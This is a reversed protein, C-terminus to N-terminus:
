TSKSPVAVWRPPHGHKNGTGTEPNYRARFEGLPLHYFDYTKHRDYPKAFSNTEHEITVREIGGEGLISLIQQQLREDERMQALNFLAYQAGSDKGELIARYEDPTKATTVAWKGIRVAEGQYQVTSTQLLIRGGASVDGTNSNGCCNWYVLLGEEEFPKGGNPILKSSYINDENKEVQKDISM